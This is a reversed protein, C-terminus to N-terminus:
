KEDDQTAEEEEDDYEEDDYEEDDYEEDDLEENENDLEEDDGNDIYDYASMGKKKPKLYEEDDDEDIDHYLQHREKGSKHMPQLRKAKRLEDADQDRFKQQTKM